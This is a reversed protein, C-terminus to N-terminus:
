SPFLAALQAVAAESAARDPRADPNGFDGAAQAQVVIGDGRPVVFLNKQLYFLGYKVEPQPILRATQGRVPIISDDDLLARAGYGTANVITKERLDAFERPSAFERTEIEGGNRLFEDILLRTLANINFNMLPYHAVHPVPFPVHGPAVPQFGSTLDPLLRSELM